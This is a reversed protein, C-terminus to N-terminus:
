RSKKNFAAPKPKQRQGAKAGLKRNNKSGKAGTVVAKDEVTKTREDRKEADRNKILCNTASGILDQRNAKQLAEIVLQRNKPNKYQLLARQMAKERTGKAVFIQHGTLPNYESYYMATALSGPTPIFDQVQEPQHGTDRLFEAMSVADNLSAGPHSSILYPVLYQKLNLAENKRVFKDAFQQYIEKGPKQMCALVSDVVHEPAVKLQGSVHHACLEHLFVGSKDLLLYDYRVGSRIFVKKIGSLARLKRLLNVYDEHSTDLQKCPQPFLCQQEKCTGKTLQKKCSPHRFNATPGGVDHIYGKFDPMAILDQAEGIISEHSRAQIIRGQHSHIACFSCSGFCGRQSVISFKVEEIAPVGGLADYSPHWNRMYPLNYIDDLEKTELPLAPPNQVVYADNCKQVVIRGRIPDQEDYHQKFAKAFLVKDAMVQEHSAMHVQELGDLHQISESVYATGRVHRIDEVPVGGDLYDAIEEIAREGMGFVLLDAKSDMLVSRRLKNDWYDYHTFRRLSAEVGGIIIPVKKYAERIRNSYVITARDPRKGAEGGPSYADQRREKRAATYHNLMSDLNGAAVLFGLRPRGLLKFDKTDRWNPQCILGVKYGKSELVRCVVAPAFSPHDVYADGSVFIFDLQKWGRELVEQRSIPLFRKIM